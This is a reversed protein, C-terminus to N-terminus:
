TGDRRARGSGDRATSAPAATRPSRARLVFQRPGIATRTGGTHVMAVALEHRGPTLGALDVVRLAPGLDRAPLRAATAAPLFGFPREVEYGRAWVLRFLEDIWTADADLRHLRLGAGAVLIAALWTASRTWARHQPTTM